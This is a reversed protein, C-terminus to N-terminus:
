TQLGFNQELLRVLESPTLDAKILYGDALEEIEAKDEDSQELNTTIVIKSKLRLNNAKEYARVQKLVDTGSVGPIMLDLLVIDYNNSMIMRYAEVGDPCVDIAHGSRTIARTYLDGIFVEDEVCLIKM